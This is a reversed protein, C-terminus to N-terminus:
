VPAGTEHQATPPASVVNPYNYARAFKKTTKQYTGETKGGRHAMVPVALLSIAIVWSAAHGLRSMVAVALFAVALADYMTFEARIKACLAGQDSHYARLWDYMNGAEDDKEVLWTRKKRAEDDDNVIQSIEIFNRDDKKAFKSPIFRVIKNPIFWSQENLRQVLKGFPAIVHGIIFSFGLIALTAAPVVNDHALHGGLLMDLLKSWRDHGLLVIWAVVVVSGPIIRALIDFFVQPILKGFEM